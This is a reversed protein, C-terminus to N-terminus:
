QRFPVQSSGMIGAAAAAAVAASQAYDGIMLNPAAGAGAAGASLNLGQPQQPQAAAAGNALVSTDTAGAAAPAPKRGTSSISGQHINPQALAAAPTPPAMVGPGAQAGQQQPAAGNDLSVHGLGDVIM